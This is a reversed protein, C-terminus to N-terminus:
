LTRYMNGKLDDIRNVYRLFKVKTESPISEKQTNTMESTYYKYMENILTEYNLDIEEETPLSEITELFDEKRDMKKVYDDDLVDTVEDVLYNTGNVNVYAKNENYTVFDVKGQITTINGNDANKQTIIVNKGVMESARSMVMANAMNSLQEVQSFTAYQSIYETNSEPEIPNQYKMQAVLIKLFSDKDYGKPTSDKKATNTNEVQVNKVVASINNMYM